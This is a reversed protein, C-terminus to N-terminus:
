LRFPAALKDKPSLIMEQTSLPWPIALSPSDVHFIGESEPHYPVDTKYQVVATPSLVCFGHAFGKPIFLQKKNEASLDLCFVKGRTPSEPRIDVAVDFIKGEVVRIYKSQAYPDAQYHLGRTVGFRSMSENEQVFDILGIHRSFSERLFSEMFYGREDRYVRPTIIWIGKIPAEEFVM